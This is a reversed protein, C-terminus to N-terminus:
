WSYVGQAVLAGAAVGGFFASWRGKPATAIAKWRAAEVAAASANERAQELDSRLADREARLAEALAAAKDHADLALTLQRRQAECSELRSLVFDFRVPSMAVVFGGDAVREFEAASPRKAWTARIGPPEDACAQTAIAFGIAVGLAITTLVGACRIEDGQSSDM